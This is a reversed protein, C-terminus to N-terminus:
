NVESDIPAFVDIKSGKRPSSTIEFGGGISNLREAISFLGFGGPKGKVPGIRSPDFGCGDDEITIRISSRDEWLRIRANKAKSHKVINFLLEKAIQFLLIKLNEGPKKQLQDIKAQACIGNHELTNEILSELAAEFGLDYLVPSSLEFTLTGSQEITKEIIEGISALKQALQHDQTEALVSDIRLKALTLNHGVRDHLEQAIRRREREEAITLQSALSQLQRQNLQIKQEAEKIATIDEVTGLVCEDADNWNIRNVNLRVWIIKGDKRIYRKQIQYHDIERSLLKQLLAEDVPTDDPHTIYEFHRGKLEAKSYHLMKGLAKNIDVITGDSKVLGMGILSKEFIARFFQESKELAAATDTYGRCIGLIEGVVRLAQLDEKKWARCNRVDDFGLFGWLTGDSLNIPVLVMSKIDQSAMLSGIFDPWDNKNDLNVVIDKGSKLLKLGSPVSETPIKQMTQMQPKAFQSCWEHTNSAFKLDDQFEFIYSRDASVTQALLRLVDDIASGSTSILLRASEAIAQEIKLRYGLQDLLDQKETKSTKGSSNRLRQKGKIYTMLILYGLFDAM